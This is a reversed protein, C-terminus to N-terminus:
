IMQRCYLCSLMCTQGLLKVEFEAVLNDIFMPFLLPHSLEMLKHGSLSVTLNPNEPLSRRARFAKYLFTHKTWHIDVVVEGVPKIDCCQLFIRRYDSPVQIKLQIQFNTQNYSKGLSRPLETISVILTQALCTYKGWKSSCQYSIPMGQPNNNHNSLIAGKIEEIKIWHLPM